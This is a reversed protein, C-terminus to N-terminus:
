HILYNMMKVKLTTGMCIIMIFLDCKAVLLICHGLNDVDSYLIDGSFKSKLIAVGASHEFGHAFWIDNGWQAKWFSVIM